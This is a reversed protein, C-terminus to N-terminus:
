PLVLRDFDCSVRVLYISEDEAATGPQVYTLLKKKVRLGIRPQFVTERLLLALVSYYYSYVGILLM